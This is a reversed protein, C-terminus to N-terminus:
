GCSTRNPRSSIKYLWLPGHSSWSDLNELSLVAFRSAV